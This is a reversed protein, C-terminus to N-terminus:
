LFVPFGCTLGMMNSANLKAGSWPLFCGLLQYPELVTEKIQGNDCPTVDRSFGLAELLGFYYELNAYYDSSLGFIGNEGAWFM